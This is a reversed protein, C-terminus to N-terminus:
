GWRDKRWIPAISRMPPKRPPSDPTSGSPGRSRGPVGVDAAVGDRDSAVYFSRTALGEIARPAFAAPADSAIDALPPAPAPPAPMAVDDWAIAEFRPLMTSM